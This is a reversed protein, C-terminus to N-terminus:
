EYLGQDCNQALNGNEVSGIFDTLPNNLTNEDSMATSNLSIKHLFQLVQDRINIFTTM